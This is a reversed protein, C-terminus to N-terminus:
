LTSAGLARLFGEDDISPDSRVARAMGSVNAAFWVPDALRALALEDTARGYERQQAYLLALSMHDVAYYAEDRLRSDIQTRYLAIAAARDGRQALAFAARRRARGDWPDLEGARVWADVARDPRRTAALANGLEFWFRADHPDEDTARQLYQFAAALDHRYTKLEMGRYFDLEAAFSVASERTPLNLALALGAFAAAATARRRRSASAIRAVGGCAFLALIPIAPVRYRSTVFFAAVVLAQTAAFGYPVLLRRRDPWCVAAGLIALPVLVGDPLYPPGRTVLARLLASSRALAYVDTDRPIEPGDFYLYLKRVYLAAAAGPHDRWFAGAQALFWSRPHEQLADWHAGPRIGLTGDYQENNGIYFNIDGNTSVLVLEHARQWNGWTVPAVPLATGAVFAAVLVPRRLAWAALVGFPLITPGFVAAVGLAVGAGFAGGPAGRERARLLAWIAVLDAAVMWTPPLLEYSEFVLAGHVACVGAAAIAVPMSFLRRGVLFTLACSATSVLAQVIRPALLGPGAISFIAGLAYVLGPPQYWARPDAVHGDAMRRGMAVYTEEDVVPYDFLVDGRQGLIYAVRLALGAALIVALAIHVRRDRAEM